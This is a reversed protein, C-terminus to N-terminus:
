GPKPARNVLWVGIVVIITGIVFPLSINEGFLLWAEIGVVAPILYILSAARSVQGQRILFLLLTIAGLSLGFVSWLMALISQTNWDVHMPELLAAVPLIFIFGGFFQIGAIPLLDGEQLFRKQYITGLTVAVMSIVNAALPILSASMASSDLTSLSPGIAIILGLFGLVLGWKQKGALREKVAWYAIAATLLPQIAALVGSISAPVGQNIAWWIGGLYVGHLFVGSFVAHLWGALSTPWRAKMLFAIAAFVIIALFFRYALFTLPDANFSVYKAVIWGTSWILVFLAPAVSELKIGMAM